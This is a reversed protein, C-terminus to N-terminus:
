LPNPIRIKYLAQKEARIQEDVQPRLSTVGAQSLTMATINGADDKEFSITTNVAQAIFEIESTPFFQLPPQQGCELVLNGDQSM